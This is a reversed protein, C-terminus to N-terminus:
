FAAKSPSRATSSSAFLVSCRKKPKKRRKRRIERVPEGALVKEKM